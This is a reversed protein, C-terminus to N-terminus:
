VLELVEPASQRMLERCHALVEVATKCGLAVEALHRCRAFSVSRVADKVLPVASPAMSMEDVGLGLLLPTLLPNAAMEGCVGVWIGRAHGAEITSRVLRLVAPHTPEYLYAVLENVRDVAITYQILDNTGISFFKVHEALVDATLAAAPTEVMVGVEIGEDYKGGRAALERKAEELLENARIVEGVNSIMPYMIKVNGSASARLIARLQTKFVEGYQLSLRISRCGLFPNAERAGDRTPLFKDGGIDMTRVIVPHPALRSAVTLYAEAQEDEGVMEARSLFLYESRFLGVGEAGHSTVADVEQPGEINASLTIRKGDPTQAPRLRLGSLEEVIHQRAEMVKGYEERHARTPNIILVGKNGDILVEDGTSVQRSVDHLGVVAPIELARAMVATHSTPSGMDTAFGIVMEKRLNATDSPALDYAIIIHKRGLHNLSVGAQGCLNRVIRRGVDRVDAMRERLYDDELGALASAYKEVTEKVVAEANKRRDRIGAIVEEIFACDDLVMLHADLVAGHGGAARLNLDRQIGKIQQRTAILADEVRVIEQDVEAPSVGREVVHFDTDVMLYAPGIVVGPSVGIGRLVREESEGNKV